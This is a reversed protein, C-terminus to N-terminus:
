LRTHTNVFCEIGQGHWIKRIEEESLYINLGVPDWIEFGYHSKGLYVIAHGEFGVIPNDVYLIAPVKIKNPNLFKGTLSHYKIGLANLAFRVQGANAGLKTLRSLKAIYKESINMDFVKSITSISASTCSFNTSQKIFMGSTNNEKVLDGGYSNKQQHNILLLVNLILLAILYPRFKERKIKYTVTLVFGSLFALYSVIVMWTIVMAYKQYLLPFRLFFADNHFAYSGLLIFSLSLITVLWLIKSSSHAQEFTLTAPRNQILQKALFHGGVFSSIQLLLSFLIM